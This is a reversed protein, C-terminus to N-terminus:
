LVDNFVYFAENDCGCIARTRNIDLSNIPKHLTPMLSFVEFRHKAADSQLWPNEEISSGSSASFRTGRSMSTTDWHWVEGGTSCSLLHEPRDPHFKLESVSGSHASLLTVPYNNHRLDWVTLSGNEGGVLLMHRQTPHHTVCMAGIQDGSLMFTTSPKDSPSKLDWVKMQGRFNGTLVQNHKLFCVCRLSCSDAEDIKHVPTPRRANLLNLRGDEGVSVIDDEFCAVSTCPSPGGYTFYHLKDWKLLDVIKGTKVDDIRTKLLRVSGHSSAVVFTDTNIFAMETVDGPHSYTAVQYPYLDPDEEYPPYLWLTVQNTENDWSGTVFYGADCLSEPKWKVKNIKESVFTGHVKDMTM